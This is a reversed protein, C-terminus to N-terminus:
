EISEVPGGARFNLFIIRKLPTRYHLLTTIDKGVTYLYLVTCTVTLRQGSRIRRDKALCVTLICHDVYCRQKCVVVGFFLIVVCNYFLCICRYMMLLWYDACSTYDLIDLSVLVALPKNDVPGSFFLDILEIFRCDNTWENIWENMWENMWEKDILWPM